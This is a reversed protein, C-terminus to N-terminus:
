GRVRGRAGQDGLRNNALNLVQLRCAPNMLVRALDKAGVQSIDNFSLDFM